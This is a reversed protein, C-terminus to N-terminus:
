TPQITTLCPQRTSVGFESLHQLGSSFIFLVHWHKLYQVDSRSTRRHVLHTSGPDEEDAAAKEEEDVSEEENTATEDEQTAIRIWCMGNM